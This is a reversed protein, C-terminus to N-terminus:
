RLGGQLMRRADVRELHQRTARQIQQAEYARFHALLPGAHVGADNLVRLTSLEALMASALTSAVPQDFAEGLHGCRIM